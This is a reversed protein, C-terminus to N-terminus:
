LVIVVHLCDYNRMCSIYVSVYFSFLLRLRVGFYWASFCTSLRDFLRLSHRRLAAAALSWSQRHDSRPPGPSSQFLLTAAVAVANLTRAPANVRSRTRTTKRAAANGVEPVPLPRRRGIFVSEQFRRTQSTYKDTGTHGYTVSGDGTPFRRACAGM